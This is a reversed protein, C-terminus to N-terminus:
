APQTGRLASGLILVDYPNLRVVGKKYKRGRIVDTMDCPLQVTNSKGSHNMIFLYRNSADSRCTVEIDKSYPLLPSVSIKSCIDNIFNIYFDHESATALYYAKGKGFDNRTIVPMGKYFDSCYGNTDIQVATEMHLIDCLVAAPYKQGNYAFSNKSDPLLADTEEVWIGMVDRIKGPYGSTTVLDNEQVIGSFFTTIFTGGNRVFDRINRDNDSKIMYYVPAIVIKYRHLDSDPSVIDVNYNSERVATYWRRLETMFALDKSPGASLSVAWMNDWDMMIAIDSRTVTGLLRTGLQKLEAGLAKIEHFVRTSNGGYHDIVAGHLKECEGISRRMQFFMVTDAGHAVAQYSQLRMVGPRKLSNYDQWNTVSPTQEMLAFPEGHKLGRMLDHPMAAEAFSDNAAPYSDWAIFDMYSAWKFYDLGPYFGMLNTTIFADPIVSKIANYELMYDYLFSDSLFRRYDLTISPFVTKLGNDFVETRLDPLVIDKWDYYTHGWFASNWARNLADITTYKRRLWKRFNKECNECYCEGGFENSIHWSTIHKNDKYHVALTRALAPAYKRYTPSNPCCNQRGGFKRKIGNIDTRLIDPYKRAMWAPQAGTSTAMCIDLGNDCVLKVIRDLRDLDYHTEDPQIAAWSFVNLTVITIGAEKFLKMDDKWIDESWQEPNYDGGYPIQLMKDYPLM